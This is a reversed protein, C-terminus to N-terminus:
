VHSRAPSDHRPKEDIIMLANAPLYDILTPPPEGASRGSLFRSYNEIGACYGLERMMEIDYKTRQELRQAEVLKDHTRLFKLRDKLEDGIQDVAELIKERPTM